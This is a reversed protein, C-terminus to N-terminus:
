TPKVRKPSTILYTPRHLTTYYLSIYFSATQQKSPVPRNPIVINQHHFIFISHDAVLRQMAM